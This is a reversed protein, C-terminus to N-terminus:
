TGSSVRRSTAPTPSSNGTRTRRRVHMAFDAHRFVATPDKRHRASLRVLGFVIGVGRQKRDDRYKPHPIRDIAYDIALKAVRAETRRCAKRVANTTANILIACTEDGGHRFFASESCTSSLETRVVAAIASYVENAGPHGIAANLGGLNRLDMEVYHAPERTEQVHRIASKLTWIRAEGSRGEYYGTVNDRAMLGYERLREIQEATIGSALIRQAAHEYYHVFKRRNSRFEDDMAAGEYGEGVRCRTADSSMLEKRFRDGSRSMRQRKQSKGM